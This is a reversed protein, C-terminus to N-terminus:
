YMIKKKFKNISYDNYQIFINKTYVYSLSFLNLVDITKTKFLVINNTIVNTPQM